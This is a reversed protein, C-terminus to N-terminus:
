PVPATVVSGDEESGVIGGGGIGDRVKVWTTGLVERDDRAFGLSRLRECFTGCLGLGDGM